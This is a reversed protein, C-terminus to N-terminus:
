RKAPAKSRSRASNGSKKDAAPRSKGSAPVVERDYGSAPERLAMSRETSATPYISVGHDSLVRAIRHSEGVNLETGRKVKAALTQVPIGAEKAVQALKVLSSAATLKAVSVPLRSDPEPFARKEEQYAEKLVAFTEELNAYAEGPTAGDAACTPIELIEAVFYGARNDWYTQVPYDKIVNKM